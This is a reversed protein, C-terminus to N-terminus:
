ESEQVCDCFVSPIFVPSICHWQRAERMIFVIDGVELSPNIECNSAGNTVYGRVLIPQMREKGNKFIHVNFFLIGDENFSPTDILKARKVGEDRTKGPMDIFAPPKQTEREGAKRFQEVRSNIDRQSNGM